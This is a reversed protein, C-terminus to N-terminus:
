VEADAEHQRQETQEEHGGDESVSLHLVDGYTDDVQVVSGSRAIDGPADRGGGGETHRLVEGVFGVGAPCQLLLVYVAVEDDRGAEFLLRHRSSACREGIIVVIGKKRYAALQHRRELIRKGGHRERGDHHLGFSQSDASFLYLGKQEGYFGTGM